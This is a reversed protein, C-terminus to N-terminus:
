GGGTTSTATPPAGGMPLQILRSLSYATNGSADNVAAYRVTIQIATPMAGSQMQSDWESYWETGDYFSTSFGVINEALTEQEPTEPNQTLLNRTVKRYLINSRGNASVGIQVRRFGEAFATVQTADSTDDEGITYFDLSNTERGTQGMSYGVLPGAFHDGPMMVSQLDKEILDLAITVREVNAMQKESSDRAIYATRMASFIAAGMLASIGTAIILEMLTFGRRRSTRYHTTM